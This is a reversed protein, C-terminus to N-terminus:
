NAGYARPDRSRQAELTEPAKARTVLVVEDDADVRLEAVGQPTVVLCAPGPCLRPDLM